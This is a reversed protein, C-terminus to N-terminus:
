ASAFPVVVKTPPPVPGAVPDSPVVQVGPGHYMARISSANSVIGTFTTRDPLPFLLLGAAKISCIM